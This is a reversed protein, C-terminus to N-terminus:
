TRLWNEVILGHARAFERVNDTVLTAGLSLAHAAILLDNPGIPQGLRDLTTRLRAYHVAAGVPLSLVDLAELMEEVRGALRASPRREVGYRLEAAVIVSITLRSGAEGIRKQVPGHPNHVANSVINTDLM